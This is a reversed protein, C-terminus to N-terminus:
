VKLDQRGSWTDRRFQLAFRRLSDQQQAASSIKSGLQVVIAPACKRSCHGRERLRASGPGERGSGPAGPDVRAKERARIDLRHPLRGREAVDEVRASPQIKPQTAQQARAAAEPARTM